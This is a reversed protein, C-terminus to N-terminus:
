VSNQGRPKKDAGGEPLPGHDPSDAEARALLQQLRQREDESLDRDAAKRKQLLARILVVGGVGVLLLPGFWLLYTTPKLPPDYLVFDTYRDVLHAKVQEENKGERVLRYVEERMIQAVDAQSGALTENQCVVCRLEALLERFETAEEADDFKFQELTYGGATFPVLAGLLCVLTLGRKM